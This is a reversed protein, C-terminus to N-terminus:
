KREIFRQVADWNVNRGVIDEHKKKLHKCITTKATAQYDSCLTCAYIIGEHVSYHTNLEGIGPFARECKDCQFEKIRFHHKKVTKLNSAPVFSISCIMHETNYQNHCADHLM